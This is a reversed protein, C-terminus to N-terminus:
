WIRVRESEPLYLADKESLNFAEYFENLNRVVQNCRFEDPSHPDTAVRRRVEEGRMKQRWCQAWGMFFRQYGTLGDIVPPTKGDLSLQYAKYAITLGGLDGINEGITLAGNVHVDQAELPRLEEYQAILKDARKEFEARDLDTWWNNLNGDGDYKSGQDDFGHGIEHGIVAGIGGYNAADDADIDFFPPQLIAAPFVIENMGPMYYANVTQPTMLWETRDVPAGIKAFEYDQNFKTVRALNGILDDRSIDLASYDRWKDPYGIKPTFKDLKEFAKTKTESTMWTLAAIDIRYAEILNAVLEVMRTKAAPPFHKEVYIQGVAEGLSGEVLGVGRKWRAKLEPTGSLKTGYFAFSEDVFESSLYSATGSLLHWALWASWAESNFNKLIEGLGTFFSPQRVIVTAMVKSPVKSTALWTDWDFDPASAKLEAYSMKNYTLVADRDKVQDWHKSAIETELKLIADAKAAPNEIKALTFMKTVHEVFASRIEAFEEERYYAEDPLSLGSQGIYAINTNSDMNDTTIYQYFIGGLGRSEFDGLVKHFQNADSVSLALELDKAIPSIGLANAKEEDMFSGYLDGIKQAVSGKTGGSAGLEEIIERVHQEASQYLEYFAGDSSRDAPIEANDIWAGNVHRYLDDQPRVTPKQHRLDIGSKM